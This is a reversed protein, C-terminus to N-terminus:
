VVSKRDISHANFQERNMTETGLLVHVRKLEAILDNKSLRKAPQAKMKDSVKRGGYLHEVGAKSLANKWTGFRRRLTTVSVRQSLREFAGSSLSSSGSHQAAVRRIEDLLSEDTYDDLFNIEFRPM